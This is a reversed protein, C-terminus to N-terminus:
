DGLRGLEESARDHELKARELVEHAATLAQEAERLSDAAQDRRTQAADLDREAREAARRASAETKSAAKLLEAREREARKAEARHAGDPERAPKTPRGAGRSTGPHSAAGAQGLGIHRLERALCGDKVQARAHEDLAAAQLTESVRDLTAPTLEHGDSSLLGRALEALEGVTDRERVVAERLANGDGRGALLETQAHQLADGADFLAAVERGRTRVLQNVAWAAVSPKRLSSIEAARERQGDKRLAKALTRREPVFRDLPLGYLDQEDTV